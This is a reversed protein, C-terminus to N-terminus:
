FATPDIERIEASAYPITDSTLGFWNYLPEILAYAIQGAQVHPEGAEAEVETERAVDEEPAEARGRPHEHGTTHLAYPAMWLRSEGFHAGSIGIQCRLPLPLPEVHDLTNYTKFFDYTFEILALPNVKPNDVFADGDRPWGLLDCFTGLAVFTGDKYLELRKPGGRDGRVSATM